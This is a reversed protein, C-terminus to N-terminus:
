KLINVTGVINFLNQIEYKFHFGNVTCEKQVHIKLSSIIKKKVFYINLM